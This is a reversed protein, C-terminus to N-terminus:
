GHLDLHCRLYIQELIPSCVRTARTEVRTPQIAVADLNAGDQGRKRKRTPATDGQSASSTTGLQSNIVPPGFANRPTAAVIAHFRSFGTNAPVTMRSKICSFKASKAGLRYLSNFQLLVHFRSRPATSAQLPLLTGFNAPCFHM